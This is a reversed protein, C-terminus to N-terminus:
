FIGIDTGQHKAGGSEEQLLEAKAASVICDGETTLIGTGIDVEQPAAFRVHAHIIVAVHEETGNM